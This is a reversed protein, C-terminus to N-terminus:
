WALLPLRSSFASFSRELLRGPVADEELRRPARAGEEASVVM